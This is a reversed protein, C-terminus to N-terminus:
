IRRRTAEQVPHLRVQWRAGSELTRVRRSGGERVNNRRVVQEGHRFFILLHFNPPPHGFFPKDVDALTQVSSM